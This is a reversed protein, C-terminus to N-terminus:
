PQGKKNIRKDDAPSAYEPAPDRPYKPGPYDPEGLGRNAYWIEVRNRPLFHVKLGYGDGPPVAFHVPVTAEHWESTCRSEPDVARDNVFQIHSIDCTEWKVTAMTPKGWWAKPLDVCCVTGGGGGWGDTSGGWKGNVYFAPIGVMKGIHGIGSVSYTDKGLFADSGDTACGTLSLALLISFLWRQLVSKNAKM